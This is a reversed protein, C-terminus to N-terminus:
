SLETDSSIMMPIHIISERLEQWVLCDDNDELSKTPTDYTACANSRINAAPKIELTTVNDAICTVKETGTYGCFAIRSFCKCQDNGMDERPDLAGKIRGRGEVFQDGWSKLGRVYPMHMYLHHSPLTTEHDLYFQVAEEEDPRNTSNLHLKYDEMMHHLPLIIRQIYEGMMHVHDGNLIVHNEVPSITCLQGKFWTADPQQEMSADPRLFSSTDMEIRIKGRDYYTLLPQKPHCVVRMSDFGFGINKDRKFYFWYNDLPYTRQCINEVVHCRKTPGSNDSIEAEWNFPEREHVIQQDAKPVESSFEDKIFYNAHLSWLKELQLGIMLGCAVFLSIVAGHNRERSLGRRIPTSQGFHKVMILSCHAPSPHLDSPRM